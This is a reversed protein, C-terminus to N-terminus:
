FRQSDLQGVERHSVYIVSVGSAALSRVIELLRVVERENLAATPEDM